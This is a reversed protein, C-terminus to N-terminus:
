LITHSPSETSCLPSISVKKTCEQCKQLKVALSLADLKVAGKLWARSWKQPLESMSGVVDTIILSIYRSRERSWSTM